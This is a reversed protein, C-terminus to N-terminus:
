PITQNHLQADAIGVTLDAGIALGLTNATDVVLEIPVIKVSDAGIERRNL